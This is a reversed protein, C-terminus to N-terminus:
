LAKGTCPVRRIPHPSSFGLLANSGKREKYFMTSTEDIYRIQEDIGYITSKYKIYVKQNYIHLITLLNEGIYVKSGPKLTLM